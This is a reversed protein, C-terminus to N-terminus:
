LTFTSTFPQPFVLIPSLQSYVPSSIVGDMNLQFNCYSLMQSQKLIVAAPQQYNTPYPTVDIICDKHGTYGSITPSVNYM